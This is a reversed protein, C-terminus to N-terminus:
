YVISAQFKPCYQYEFPFKIESIVCGEITVQDHKQITNKDIMFNNICIIYCYNVVQKM